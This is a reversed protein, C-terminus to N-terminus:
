IKANAERPHNYMLSGTCTITAEWTPVLAPNVCLQNVTGNLGSRSIKSFPILRPQYCGMEHWKQGSCTGMASSGRIVRVSAQTLHPRAPTQRHWTPTRWQSHQVFLVSSLALHSCSGPVVRDPRWPTRIPVAPLTVNGHTTDQQPSSAIRLQWVPCAIKMDNKGQRSGGSPPEGGGPPTRIGNLASKQCSDRGTRAKGLNNLCAIFFHSVEWKKAAWHRGWM